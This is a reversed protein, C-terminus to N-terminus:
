IILRVQTVLNFYNAKYIGCSKWLAVTVKPKSIITKGEEHFNCPESLDLSMILTVCSAFLPASILIQTEQHRLSHKEQYPVEM